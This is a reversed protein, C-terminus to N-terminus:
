DPVPQGEVVPESVDSPQPDTSDPAPSDSAPQGNGSQMNLPRLMEDLGPLPNLDELRRAENRTMWCGRTIASEYFAARSQADGRLLGQVVFKSSYGNRRESETLLDRDIAQEWLAVWPMLSHVVHAGFFAEASAYTTAKDSYGIMSPFVRFFRCVDEVQHRRTELHQSDVGTMAWPEFKLGNDLLLTKFANQVGSYGESFQKKIREIQEKSLSNTTTLVGGPRSGNSHLRAQSEETAIALGIAESGHRVVELASLGNWSLGHIAHVQDRPLAAIGGAGDSVEYWVTGDVSQRPIVNGPMLPILELVEGTRPSRNIWSYGGKCLLAHLLQTMRWEMSTQWENPQRYIVRHLPHDRAVEKAGSSDERFLKLPIKGIDETLVRCCGWVAGVRLATYENVSVGAKSSQGGLLANWALDSADVVKTEDKPRGFLSEFLSM